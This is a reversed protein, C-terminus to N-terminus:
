FVRAFLFAWDCAERCVNVRKSNCVVHERSFRAGAQAFIAFLNAILEYFFHLVSQHISGCVHFSGDM